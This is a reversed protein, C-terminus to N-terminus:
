VPISDPISHRRYLKVRVPIRELDDMFALSPVECRWPVELVVVTTAQLEFHQLHRPSKIVTRATLRACPSLVSCGRVWELAVRESARCQRTSQSERGAKTKTFNSM